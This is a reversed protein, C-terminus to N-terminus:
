TIAIIKTFSIFRCYYQFMSEISHPRRVFSRAICLWGAFLAGGGHRASRDYDTEVVMQHVNAPGRLLSIKQTPPMIVMMM